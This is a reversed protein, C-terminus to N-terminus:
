AIHNMQEYKIYSLIYICKVHVNNRKIYDANFKFAIFTEIMLPVLHWM